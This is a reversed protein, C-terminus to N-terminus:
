NRHPWFVAVAFCIDRRMWAVRPNDEEACTVTATITSGDSKYEWEMEGGDVSAPKGMAALVENRHMGIFDLIPDSFGAKRIARVADTHSVSVSTIKQSSENYNVFLLGQGLNWSVHGDRAPARPTGYYMAPASYANDPSLGALQLPLKRTVPSAQNVAQERIAKIAQTHGNNSARKMWRASENADVPVGNGSQHALALWYQAEPLNQDAAKRVWQAALAPTGVVETGELIILAWNFQARALGQDAARRIMHAAEARNKEVGNGQQLMLGLDSLAGAHDQKIAKRWWVVTQTLDKEFGLGFYYARGLEYEADSHGQAAAKAYWTLADAYSQPVGQGASYMTGLLTQAASLGQEAASRCWRAAEDHDLRFDFPDRLLLALNFKAVAVNAEAARRFLGYAKAMDPKVGLGSRYLVALNNQARANSDVLREYIEIAEKYRGAESAQKAREIQASVAATEAPYLPAPTASQALATLPASALLMVLCIMGWPMQSKM